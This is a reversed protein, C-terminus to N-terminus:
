RGEARRDLDAMFDGIGDSALWRQVMSPIARGFHTEVDYVLRTGGPADSMAFTGRGGTIDNDQTTDLEHMMTGQAPSIVYHNHYTVEFGFKSVTWRVWQETSTSPRYHTITRIGPNGARRGEWDLLAKWVAARGAVIDVIALVGVAGPPAPQERLVVEGAALAAAEDATLTVAHALGALLALV